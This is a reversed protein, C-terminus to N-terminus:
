ELVKSRALGWSQSLPLCLTKNCSSPRSGDSDPQPLVCVCVCVYVCMYMRVCMRVYMQLYMHMSVHTHTYMYIYIYVCVCMCTFVSFLCMYLVRVCMDICFGERGSLCFILCVSVYM